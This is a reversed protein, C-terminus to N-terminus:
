QHPLGTAHLLKKQLRIMQEQFIELSLLHIPLGVMFLHENVMLKHRSLFVWESDVHQVMLTTHETSKQNQAPFICLLPQILAM